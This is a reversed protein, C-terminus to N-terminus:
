SNGGLVVLEIDTIQQALLEQGQQIELDRLEGDTMAQMIIETETTANELQKIAGDVAHISQKVVSGNSYYIYKYEDIIEEKM